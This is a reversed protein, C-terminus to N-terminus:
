MSRLEVMVKAVEKIKDNVIKRRMLIQVAM